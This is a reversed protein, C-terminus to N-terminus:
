ELDVIVVLGNDYFTICWILVLQYIWENYKYADNKNTANLSASAVDVMYAGM